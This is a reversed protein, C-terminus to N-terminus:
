GSASIAAATIAAASCGHSRIRVPGRPLMIRGGAPETVTSAKMAGGHGVPGVAVVNAGLSLQSLTASVDTEVKTSNSTVVQVRRAKGFPSESVVTFGGNSADRVTGTVFPPGQPPAGKPTIKRLHGHHHRFRPGISGAPPLGVQIAVRTAALRRGSWSGQVTVRSGDTIDSVSGTAPVTITTSANAAV